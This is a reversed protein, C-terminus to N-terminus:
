RPVIAIMDPVYNSGEYGWHRAPTVLHFHADTAGDLNLITQVQIGKVEGLLELFKGFEYLTLAQSDDRFAGAVLLDGNATLGIGSRNFPQDKRDRKVARLGNEFLLPKSQIAEKPTGLEGKQAISIIQTDSEKRVLLIGGTTWNQAFSSIQNGNSILLGVPMGKNAADYGYFGGNVLALADKPSYTEYLLNAPGIKNVLCARLTVSEHPFVVWVLTVPPKEDASPVTVSNVVISSRSNSGIPIRTGPEKLAKAISDLVSAENQPM